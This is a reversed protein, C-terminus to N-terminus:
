GVRGGYIGNRLGSKWSHVKESLAPLARTQLEGSGGPGGGRVMAITKGQYYPAQSLVQAPLLLSYVIAGALMWAPISNTKLRM